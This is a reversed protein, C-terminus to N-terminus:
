HIPSLIFKSKSKFKSISKKGIQKDPISVIFEVEVHEKEKHLRTIQMCMWRFMVTLRVGM